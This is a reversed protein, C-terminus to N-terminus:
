PKVMVPLYVSFQGSTITTTLVTTNNSMDPDDATTLVTVTNTITGATEPALVTLTLPVATNSGLTDLYCTVISVRLSCGASADVFTVGTALTDTIILGTANDPGNNTITLTYTLPEGTTVPDPLATHGVALDAIPVAVEIIIARTPNLFPDFDLCGTKDTTLIVVYLGPSAYTHSPSPLTSTIGDGFDWLVSDYGVSLNTFTVALPAPSTGLTATFDATLFAGPGADLTTSLPTDFSIIADGAFGSPVYDGITYASSGNAPVSAPVSAVLTGDTQWYENVATAGQNTNNFLTYQTTEAVGCIHIQLVEGIMKQPTTQAVLLQAIMLLCSLTLGFSWLIMRIKM